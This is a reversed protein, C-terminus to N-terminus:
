LGVSYDLPILFCLSYRSTRHELLDFREKMEELVVGVLERGPEERLGDPRCRGTITRIVEVADV